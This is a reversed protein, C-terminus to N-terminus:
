KLEEWDQEGVPKTPDEYFLVSNKLEGPNDPLEDIGQFEKVVIPHIKEKASLKPYTMEVEGGISECDDEILIDPMVREAPEKYSEGERRFVLNEPDPFSYKKLIQSIAKLEDATRRSTLYYITAGQSHWSKLKAVANGVPIYSGYDHVSGPAEKYAGKDDLKLFAEERQIGALNSQRVREERSLEKGSSFMLVTGETFVLIKM